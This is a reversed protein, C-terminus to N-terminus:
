QRRKRTLFVTVVGSRNSQVSKLGVDIQDYPDSFIAYVGAGSTLISGSTISRTKNIGAIPYGRITYQVGSGLRLCELQVAVSGFGLVDAKATYVFSNTTGTGSTLVETKGSAM